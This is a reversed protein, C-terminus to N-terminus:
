HCTSCDKTPSEPSQDHCAACDLTGLHKEALPLWEHRTLLAPSIHFNTGDLQTTDGHCKKCSSPLPPSIKKTVGNHSSEMDVGKANGGHCATCAITGHINKKLFTSSIEVREYPALLNRLDGSKENTQPSTTQRQRNADTLKKLREPNTHCTVCNSEGADLATPTFVFFPIVIVVFSLSIRNIIGRNGLSTILGM